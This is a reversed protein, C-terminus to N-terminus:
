LDIKQYLEIFWLIDSLFREPYKDLKQKDYFIAKINGNEYSKPRWKNSVNLNSTLDIKDVLTSKYELEHSAILDNVQRRLKKTVDLITSRGKYETGQNLSIYVGCNRKILLVVYVGETMNSAMCEDRIPFLPISPKNPSGQIKNYEIVYENLYKNLKANVSIFKSQIDDFTIDGNIYGEYNDIIFILDKTLEKM